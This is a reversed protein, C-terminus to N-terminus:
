PAERIVRWAKLLLSVFLLPILGWKLALIWEAGVSEHLSPLFRSVLSVFIGVHGIVLLWREVRSFRSFFLRKLFGALQAIM